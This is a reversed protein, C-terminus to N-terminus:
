DNSRTAPFTSAVDVAFGSLLRSTAQEGVNFAGHEVYRDNELWLVTIQQSLPDVIWYEPIKAAAYELRKKQLDRERSDPDRSVVEMVLDAGTWYDEDRRSEHEALMFAVDPDRYKDPITWVRIPAFVAEGLGRTLVFADLARFLYRVTFQHSQSPMELVEVHGDQFELLRNTSHTLALYESATCQGQPPFNWAPEVGSLGSVDVHSMTEVGLIVAASLCAVWHSM